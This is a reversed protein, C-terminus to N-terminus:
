TWFKLKLCCIRYFRRPACRCLKRREKIVEEIVNKREKARKQERKLEEMEGSKRRCKRKKWACENQCTTIGNIREHWKEDMRTETRDFAKGSHLLM